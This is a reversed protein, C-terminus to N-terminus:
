PVIFGLAGFLALNLFKAKRDLIPPTIQFPVLDGPRAFLDGSTCCGPHTTLMSAPAFLFDAFFLGHAIFPQAFNGLHHGHREMARHEFYLPQHHVNPGRFKICAAAFQRAPLEGFYPAVRFNDFSAASATAKLGVIGAYRGTLPEADEAEAVLEDDRYVRLSKGFAVFRLRFKEKAAVTRAVLPAAAKGPVRKHVTVQTATAAAFYFSNKDWQDVPGRDRDRLGALDPANARLLVGIEHDAAGLSIDLSAEFDATAIEENFVAAEPKPDTGSLPYRGADGRIGMAVNAKRSRDRDAAQRQHWRAGLSDADTMNFDDVAGPVVFGPYALRYARKREAVFDAATTLRFLRASDPESFDMQTGRKTESAAIPLLPDRFDIPAGATQASAASVGALSAALTAM